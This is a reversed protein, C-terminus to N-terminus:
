LRLDDPTEPLRRLLRIRLVSRGTVKWAPQPLHPSGTRPRPTRNSAFALVKVPEIRFVPRCRRGLGQQHHELNRAKQEQLGTCFHMADDHLVGMLPTVHPRDDIRVTTLRYLEARELMCVADSWSTLEAAPENFRSDLRTVPQSRPIM